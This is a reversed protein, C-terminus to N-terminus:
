ARPRRRGAGRVWGRYLAVAVNEWSQGALPRVVPVIRVRAGRFCAHAVTESRVVLALTLGPNDALLREAVEAPPLPGAEVILVDALPARCSGTAVVYPEEAIM